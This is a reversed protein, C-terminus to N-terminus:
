KICFLYYKNKTKITSVKAWAWPIPNEKIVLYLGKPLTSDDQVKFSFSECNSIEQTTIEGTLNKWKLPRDIVQGLALSERRNQRSLGFYLKSNLSAGENYRYFKGNIYKYILIQPERVDRTFFAWGQPVIRRLKVTKNNFHFGNETNFSIFILFIIFIVIVYASAHKIKKIFDKM